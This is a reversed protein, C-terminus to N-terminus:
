RSVTRPAAALTSRNWRPASPRLLINRPVASGSSRRTALPRLFTTKSETAGTLQKKKACLNTLKRQAVNRHSATKGQNNGFRRSWTMPFITLITWDSRLGFYGKARLAATTKKRPEPSVSPLACCTAHRIYYILSRQKGLSVACNFKRARRAIERAVALGDGNVQFTLMGSFNAMQRCALEYQPHSPLGPYTVRRIRPHSELFRAVKMASEAHARMRLTLTHLGRRILWANFPSLAGGFHILSVRRLEALPKRRGIVVGGLADGHGNLYKTLSHIVWDAGLTLPRTAVPTAMTSDVALQAGAQHAIQSVAALDTLRLIPNCPSEAWLLRTNPRLAAAVAELDSFNATTVEIGFDPLTDSALEAVGAYCVDSLVLHDGKKLTGLLLCTAAAMGSGFCLADEGDELDALKQELGRVTPTSWRAYLYPDGDKLDVASFGSSDPDTVFNTSLILPAEVSKTTPDQEEGVHLARTRLALKKEEAM